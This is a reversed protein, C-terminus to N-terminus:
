KTKNSEINSSETIENEPDYSLIEYLLTESVGDAHAKEELRHLRKLFYEFGEQKQAPRKLGHKLDQEGADCVHALFDERYKTYSDNTGNQPVPKGGKVSSCQFM